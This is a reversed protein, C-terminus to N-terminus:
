IIGSLGGGAGQDPASASSAPASSSPAAHESAPAGSQEAGPGPASSGLQKRCVPCTGHLELWPVICGSHFCHGCELLRVEEGETFDEWCVSCSSSKEMQEKNIKVTPISQINETAMPPPGAGDMQNLLQTIIADLGGRGWAYDGPNGHIQIGSDGSIQNGPVFHFSLGSPGM